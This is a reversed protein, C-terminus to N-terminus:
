PRASALAVTSPAGLVRFSATELSSASSSFFFSSSAPALTSSFYTEGERYVFAANRLKASRQKKQELIGPALRHVGPWLLGLGGAERKYILRVAETYSVAQYANPNKELSQVAERVIEPLDEREQFVEPVTLGHDQLTALLEEDSMALLEEPTGQSAACSSLLGIWLLAVLLLSIPHVKKTKRRM